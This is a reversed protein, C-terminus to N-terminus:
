REQGPQIRWGVGLEGRRLAQHMDDSLREQRAFESSPDHAHLNEIGTLSDNWVGAARAAQQGAAIARVRDQVHPMAALEAHLRERQAVMAAQQQAREAFLERAVDRDVCRRGIDDLFVRGDLRNALDDVTAGLGEAVLEALTIPTTSMHHEEQQTENECRRRRQSTRVREAKAAASPVNPIARGDNRNGRRPRQTHAAVISTAEEFKHRRAKNM